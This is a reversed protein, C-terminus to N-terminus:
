AKELLVAAQAEIAEMRGLYGLKENTKGKINVCATQFCLQFPRRRKLFVM